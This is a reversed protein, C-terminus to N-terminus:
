MTKWGGNVYNRPFDTDDTILPFGRDQIQDELSLSLCLNKIKKIYCQFLIPSTEFMVRVLIQALFIIFINNISLLSHLLLILQEILVFSILFTNLKM